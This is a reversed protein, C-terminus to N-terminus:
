PCPKGVWQGATEGRACMYQHWRGVIRWGNSKADPRIEAFTRKGSVSDDLYGHEEIEVAMFPRAPAKTFPRGRWQAKSITVEVSPRGEMGEPHNGLLAAAADALTAYRTRFVPDMRPKGMGRPHEIWDSFQQRHYTTDLEPRPNVVQGRGAFCERVPRMGYRTDSADIVGRYQGNIVVSYRRPGAAKAEQEIIQSGMCDMTGIRADGVQTYAGNIAITATGADVSIEFDGEYDPSTPLCGSAIEAKAIGAGAPLELCVEGLRAHAQSTIFATGFALLALRRLPRKTPTLFM